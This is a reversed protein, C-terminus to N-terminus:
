SCIKGNTSTRIWDLVKSVRAYVGPFGKSACGIGWSTVGVLTFSNDRQLVLPGGSDGQCADKADAGACIMSDLIEAKDYEGCTNKPTTKLEVVNLVSPLDISTTSRTGWGTALVTQDAFSDTDDKPLCVAGIPGSTVDVPSHLKLIAFDYNLTAPDTLNTNIILSVNRTQSGPESAKSIDNRGLLVQFKSADRNRTCHSATLVYSPGIVSGGCLFSGDYKLAVQWVFVNKAAEVGGIIRPLDSSVCQCEQGTGFMSASAAQPVFSPPVAPLMVQQGVPPVTAAPRASSKCSINCVFGISETFANSVFELDFYNSAGVTELRFTNGSEGKGCIRFTKSPGDIVKLYDESCNKSSAIDLSPCELLPQCGPAVDFMWQCNANPIYSMGGSKLPPLVTYINNPSLRRPTNTGCKPKTIQAPQCLEVGEFWSSCLCFAFIFQLM